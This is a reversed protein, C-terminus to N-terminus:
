LMLRVVRDNLDKLTGEVLTMRNNLAMVAVKERENVEDRRGKMQQTEDRKQQEQERQEM